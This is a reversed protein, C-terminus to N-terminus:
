FFIFLGIKLGELKERLLASTDVSEEEARIKIISLFLLYFVLKIM